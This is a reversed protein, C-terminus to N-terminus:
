PQGGGFMAEMERRVRVAEGTGDVEVDAWTVVEGEPVPHVVKV